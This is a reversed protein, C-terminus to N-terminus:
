FDSITSNRYHNDLFKGDKDNQVKSVKWEKVLSLLYNCEEPTFLVEERFM